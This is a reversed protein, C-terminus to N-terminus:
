RRRGGVILYHLFMHVVTNKSKSVHYKVQDKSGNKVSIPGRADELSTALLFYFRGVVLRPDCGFLATASVRQFLLLQFSLLEM